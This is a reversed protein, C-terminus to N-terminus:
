TKLMPLFYEDIAKSDSFQFVINGDVQFPPERVKCLIGTIDIIQVDDKKPWIFGGKHRTLFKVEIEKNHFLKQITGLFILM